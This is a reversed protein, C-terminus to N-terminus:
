LRVVHNFCRQRDPALVRAAEIGNEFNGAHAVLACSLPKEYGSTTRRWSQREARVRDLDGGRYEHSFVQFGVDIAAFVCGFITYSPSVFMGTRTAPRQISRGQRFAGGLLTSSFRYTEIESTREM